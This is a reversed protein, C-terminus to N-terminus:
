LSGKGTEDDVASVAAATVARYYARRMRAAQTGTLALADCIATVVSMSRPRRAGHRYSSLTSTPLGAAAAIQALTRLQQDLTIREHLYEAFTM